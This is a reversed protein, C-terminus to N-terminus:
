LTDESAPNDETSTAAGAVSPAEIDFFATGGAVARERYSVVAPDILASVTFEVNGSEDLTLGTFSPAQIARNKGFEDSQLAVSAFSLAEGQLSVRVGDEGLTYTMSTFRVTELTIEELVDFIGSPALHEDLLDQSIRLKADLRSLERILEPEFANKARELSEKKSEISSILFREYLFVGTAGLISLVFVTVGVFSLISSLTTASSAKAPAGVDFTKKPIFSTQFEQAM